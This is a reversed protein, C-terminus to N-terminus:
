ATGGKSTVPLGLKKLAVDIGVYGLKKFRAWRAKKERGVDVHIFGEDPYLGIGSDKFAPITLCLLYLSKLDVQTAVIDAARGLTHLSKAEGGVAANHKPCRYACPVHLPGVKDRLSQLASTLRADVVFQGCCRCSFEDSSFNKSLTIPKNM